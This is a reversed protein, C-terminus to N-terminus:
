NLEVVLSEYISPRTAALVREAYDVGMEREVVCKWAVNRKEFTKLRATLLGAAVAAGAKLAELVTTEAAKLEAELRAIEAKKEAVIRLTEQTIPRVSKKAM